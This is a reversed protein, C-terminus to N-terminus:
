LATAFKFWLKDGQFRNKVETERQWQFIFQSHDATEYKFSPGVAFAQGRNGDSGVKVGAVRDDEIQKFYYGALGVSWPGFHKGVLYDVHFDDGSRYDTDRNRTKANHMLKGSVEWGNRDLYTFVFISELSYYNAGINKGPAAAKNFAGTPLFVDFGAAFHWEPFHWSLILPTLVSDAMGTRGSETGALDVSLDAVPVIVAWGYTAGFLTAETIRVYRLADFTASVKIDRGGPRVKNGSGDRLTASYHGLYNIFYTGPPPVAGALWSEAGNQSQDSGEKAQASAVALACGIALGLLWNTM